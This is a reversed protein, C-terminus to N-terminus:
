RYFAHARRTTGGRPIAHRSAGDALQRSKRHLGACVISATSVRPKIPGARTRKKIADEEGAWAIKGRKAMHPRTLENTLAGGGASWITLSPVCSGRRRESPM